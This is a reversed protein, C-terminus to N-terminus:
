VGMNQLPIDHLPSDSYNGSNDRSSGEENIQINDNNDNNDNNNNTHYNYDVYQANRQNNWPKYGDEEDDEENDDFRNRDNNFRSNLDTYRNSSSAYSRTRTRTPNGEFTNFRKIGKTYQEASTGSVTLVNSLGKGLLKLGKKALQNWPMVGNSINESITPEHNIPRSSETVARSISPFLSAMEEESDFTRTRRMTCYAEIDDRLNLKENSLMIARDISNPLGRHRGRILTAVIVLKSLKKFEGCFSVNVNPYGLSLGVTGYASTVEFMIQFIGFRLDGSKIRGGEVICIIFIALFLFWLDFSLQKRLHAGIYNLKGKKDDDNDDNGHYIGLSQEEYVNTRRISIALPLVSIYMMVLYSLQIAPHLTAIDVVNFGATRTSFAQYLGALVQYGRPLYSLVSTDFDLIIFLIWDFMNLFVLVATLWWTPGSPFLMTFCRRPHDLLFSLSNHTMTLPKCFLRMVWIILRLFIPFATNGILIFFGSIILTYANQAFPIMSAATLTYGLDNFSSMATFFAWWTPSIGDARVVDIYEQKNNIYAVFFIINLIHFGVYYSILIKTLLKMSQYEVGGLEAKEEASLAIFKSNRGIKPDWSLYNTPVNKLGYYDILEDDSLESANSMTRNKSKLSFTRGFFSARRHNNPHRRQNFSEDGSTEDSESENNLLLDSDGRGDVKNNAASIDFPSFIKKSFEHMTHSHELLKHKERSPPVINKNKEGTEDIENHNKGNALDLNSEGNINFDDHLVNELQGKLFNKENEVNEMIERAKRKHRKLKHEKIFKKRGLNSKGKRHKRLERPSKIHLAPGFEIDNTSNNPEKQLASISMYLDRPDLDRKKNKRPKPLEGFKINTRTPSEPLNNHENNNGDEHDDDIESDIDSDYNDNHNYDGEDEDETPESLHSIAGGDDVEDNYGLKQEQKEHSSSTTSGNLSQNHVKSNYDTNLDLKLNQNQREMSNNNSHNKMNEFRAMRSNLGESANHSEYNRGKRNNNQSSTGTMTRASTESRLNAITKSRRMNYQQISSIKINDFRKEYWYLRLITLFSHIFIPTTLMCVVYVAIQQYLKLNNLQETALGGQTCSGAAFVLADIYDINKEPYIVVSCLITMFIIYVYHAIIFNPIIRKVIPSLFDEIKYIVQRIAAFTSYRFKNFNEYTEDVVTASRKLRKGINSRDFRNSYKRHDSYRHNDTNDTNNNTNNNNIKSESEDGVHHSRDMTSGDISSSGSHNEKESENDSGKEHDKQNHTIHPIFRNIGPPLHLYNHSTDLFEDSSDNDIRTVIRQPHRIRTNNAADSSNISSENLGTDDVMVHPIDSRLPDVM